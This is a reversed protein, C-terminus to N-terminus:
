VLTNVAVGYNRFASNKPSVPFRSYSTKKNNIM